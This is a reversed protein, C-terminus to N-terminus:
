FDGAVKSSDAMLCFFHQKLSFRPIGTVPHGPMKGLGPNLNQSIPYTVLRSCVVAPPLFMEPSKSMSLRSLASM